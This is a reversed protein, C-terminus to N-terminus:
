ITSFYPLKGLCKGDFFDVTDLQLWNTARQLIIESRFQLYSNNPASIRKRWTSGSLWCFCGTYPDAERLPLPDVTWAMRDCLRKMM